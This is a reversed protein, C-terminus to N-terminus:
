WTEVGKYIMYIFCSAVIMTIILLILSFAAGVGLDFIRYAVWTIYVGYTTASFNPGTSGVALWITEFTRMTFATRFLLVIAIMPKLWPITIKSFQQWASAGDVRAAEYQEIPIASLGALFILIAFSTHQWVDILIASIIPWPPDTTWPIPSLGPLVELIYNFLGYSEVVFFKWTLGAVAPAIIMPVLMAITLFTRGKKERNLALAVALGLLLELVVAGVVLFVTNKTAIYFAPDSFIKEYNKTGVWPAEPAELPRYNRFSYDIAVFWPFVLVALLLFFVPAM